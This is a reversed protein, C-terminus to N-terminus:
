GLPPEPPKHEVEHLVEQEAMPSQGVVGTGGGVGGVGGGEGGVGGTGGVGVGGGGGGEVSNSPLIKVWNFADSESPTKKYSVALLPHSGDV